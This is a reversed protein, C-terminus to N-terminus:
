GQTLSANRMLESRLNPDSKANEFILIANSLTDRILTGSVNDISQISPRVIFYNGNSDPGDLRWGYENSSSAFQIVSSPDQTQQEPYTRNIDMNINSRIDPIPITPTPGSQQQEGAIAAVNVPRLSRIITGPTSVFTSPISASKVDGSEIFTEAENITIGDSGGDTGSFTAFASIVPEIQLTVYVSLPQRFQNYATDDGGRRLSISSIYGCPIYGAGYIRAHVFRPWGYSIGDVTKPAAMILLYTLPEIIYKRIAKPHGYPSVLRISLSMSPSYSTDHWVKPLAINKGLLIAEKSTTAIAKLANSIDLSEPSDPFKAQEKIADVIKQTLEDPTTSTQTMANTSRLVTKSLGRLNAIARVLRNSQSLNELITRIPSEEYMNSLEEQISTDDTIFCRIGSYPTLGYKECDKKFIEIEDDFNYSVAGRQQEFKTTDLYYKVPILDVIRMTSRIYRNIYGSPDVRDSLAAIQGVYKFGDAM